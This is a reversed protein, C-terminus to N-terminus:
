NESKQFTFLNAPEGIYIKETGNTIYCDSYVTPGYVRKEIGYFNVM